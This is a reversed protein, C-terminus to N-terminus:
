FNMRIKGGVGRGSASDMGGEFNPLQLKRFQEVVIVNSIAQMELAPKWTRLNFTFIFNILWLILFSYVFIACKIEDLKLLKCLLIYKKTDLKDM